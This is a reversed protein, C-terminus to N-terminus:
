EQGGGDYYISVAAVEDRGYQISSATSFYVVPWQGLTVFTVERHVKFDGNRLFVTVTKLSRRSSAPHPTRAGAPEDEAM